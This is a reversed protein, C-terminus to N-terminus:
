GEIGVDQIEYYDRASKWCRRQDDEQGFQIDNSNQYGHSVNRSKAEM